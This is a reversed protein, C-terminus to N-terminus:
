KRCLGFSNAQVACRVNDDDPLRFWAGNLITKSATQILSLKIIYVSSDIKNKLLGSILAKYVDKERGWNKLTRLVNKGSEVINKKRKAM